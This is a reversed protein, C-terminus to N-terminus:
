SWGRLVEGVVGFVEEDGGVEGRVVGGAEVLGVEGREEGFAFGATAALLLGGVSAGGGGCGDGGTAGATAAGFVAGDRALQETWM